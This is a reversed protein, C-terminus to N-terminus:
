IGDSRSYRKCFVWVETFTRQNKRRNSKTPNIFIYAECQEEKYMKWGSVCVYKIMIEINRGTIKDSLVEFNYKIKHRYANDTM